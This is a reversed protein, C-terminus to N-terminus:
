DCLDAASLLLRVVHNLDDANTFEGITKYSQGKHDRRALVYSVEGRKDTVVGASYGRRVLSVYTTNAVLWTDEFQLGVQKM